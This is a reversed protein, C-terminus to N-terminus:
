GDLKEGCLIGLAHMLAEGIADLSEVCANPSGAFNVILTRGRIVAVGRSLMAHCTKHMSYARIAEPIGPVQKEGISLTVEPTVDRPALGTGGTTLVLDLEREDACELLMARLLEKDDPVLASFAVQYGMKELTRRIAPGSADERVGSYARDSVTVVGIRCQEKEM